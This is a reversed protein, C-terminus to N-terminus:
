ATEGVPRALQNVAAGFLWPVRAAAPVLHRRVAPRATAQLLLRTLLEHRLGLRGALRDYRETVASTMDTRIIGPRVEFVGIGAAALRLALLRTLM